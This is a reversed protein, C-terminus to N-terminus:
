FRGESDSSGVLVTPSPLALNGSSHNKASPVLVTGLPAMYKQANFRVIRSAIKMTLLYCM